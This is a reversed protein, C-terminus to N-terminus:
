RKRISVRTVLDVPPMHPPMKRKLMASLAYYDAPHQTQEFGEPAGSELRGDACTALLGADRPKQKEVIPGVPASVVSQFGRCPTGPASAGRAPSRATAMM